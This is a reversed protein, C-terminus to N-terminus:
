RSPSPAPARSRPADSQPCTSAKVSCSPRRMSARRRLALALSMDSAVEGGRGAGLAPQDLDSLETRRDRLWTDLEALYRQIAAPDLADGLKGPATPATATM